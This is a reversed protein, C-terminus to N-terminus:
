KYKILAYATDKTNETKNFGGFTWEITTNRSATARAVLETITSKKFRNHNFGKINDQIDEDEVCFFRLILFCKALENLNNIAEYILERPLHQVVANSLVCTYKNRKTTINFIDDVYINIDPFKDKAINLMETTIDCGTYEIKNEKFFLYDECTGCGFDLIDSVNNQAIFNTLYHYFDLRRDNIFKSNKRNWADLVMTRKDILHWLEWPRYNEM